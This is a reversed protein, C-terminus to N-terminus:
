KGICFDAFIRDLIDESILAGSINGVYQLAEQLEISITEPYANGKLEAVGRQLAEAASQLEKKQRMNLLISHENSDDFESVQETIISELKEIGMNHLCSIEAIVSEAFEKKIEILTDPKAIDIKNIVIIYGKAKVKQYIKFDEDSLPTSADLLFLTLDSSKLYEKTRKIGIIEVPNESAHIGATDALILPIESLNIKIEIIDRTTGPMDTVIAKQSRAFRNLLSSKGVNPRGAIAITYGDRYFSADDYFRIIPSIEDKIIKNITDILVATDLDDELDDIFDIAAEIESLVTKIKDSIKDTKEKLSGSAQSAAFYLAKSNSANIIDIIAEAQTLDIRGNLFARKTFEGPPAAKVGFNLILNLVSKLAASGGHTHIEVVDEKTYSNPAKMYVFLVEDIIKKNDPNLIFGYYMKRSIFSKRQLLKSSDNTKQPVFFIKKAVSLAEDGSLRVVGIGGRGSSTAIAAITDNNIKPM